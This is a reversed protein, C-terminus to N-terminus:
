LFKSMAANLINMLHFNHELEFFSRDLLELFILSVEVHSFRFMDANLTNMLHLRLELAFFSSNHLYSLNVFCRCLQTWSTWWLLVLNLSLSDAISYVHFKSMNSSAIFTAIQKEHNFSEEHRTWSIWWISISNLSSSVATSYIHFNSCTKLWIKRHSRQSNSDILENFECSNLSWYSAVCLKCRALNLSWFRKRWSNSDDRGLKWQNKFCSIGSM